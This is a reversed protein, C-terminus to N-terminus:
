TRDLFDLGCVARAGLDGELGVGLYKGLKVVIEVRQCFVEPLGGVQVLPQFDPQDVFPSRHRVALHGEEEFPANGAEYPVHVPVPAGDGGQGYVDLLYGAARADLYGHLVVVAERLRAEGEGVADVRRVAPGM